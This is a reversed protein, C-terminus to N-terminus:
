KGSPVKRGKGFALADDVIFPVPSKTHCLNPTGDPSFATELIGHDATILTVYGASAAASLVKALQRDVAEACKIANMLRSLCNKRQGRKDIDASDDESAPALPCVPQVPETLVAFAPAQLQLRNILITSSLPSAIPYYFVKEEL